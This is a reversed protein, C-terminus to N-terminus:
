LALFWLLVKLIGNVIPSIVIGGLGTILFLLIIVFSYNELTYMINKFKGPLFYFLVKSGDFPPIPLMNFVAFIINFQIGLILMNFLITGVTTDIGVGVLGTIDLIKLIVTLVIAVLLNSMPGALATLMNGKSRNKFNTDDVVVPKGWGFDVLAICLFGIWDISKFPNLTLRGRYKQSRDGLKFATYAHAFEHIALSFLLVPLLYLFSIFGNKTFIDFM